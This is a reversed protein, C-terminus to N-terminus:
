QIVNPHGRTLAITFSAASALAAITRVHNWKTWAVLYDVWLAAGETSTAPVAALANNRPVNFLMTVLFTGLFYLLGGALVYAAGAERWRVLATIILLVCLVAMGFFPTLFWRNIVTVNISQMAAIGQAPLVAGLAKMVCVSFAFFFGAMLGSGLASVLVALDILSSVKM